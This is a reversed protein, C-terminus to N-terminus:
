KNNIDSLQKIVASLHQAFHSHGDQDWHVGDIISPKVVRGADIFNINLEKSLEYYAPAIRRSNAIMDAFEQDLEATEVLPAPAVLIIQPTHYPAYDFELAQKCLAKAGHRIHDITQAFSAKLDNTGLMIIVMDLPRCSELYLNLTKSGNRFARGPEDCTTTRGNLGAEYICFENGLLCQAITTWRSAEDYRFGSGPIYGWTNSDGFCLINQM